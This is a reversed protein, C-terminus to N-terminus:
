GRAAQLASSIRHAARRVRAIKAELIEDTFNESRGGISISGLVAGADDLIPAAVASVGELFDSESLSYGAARVEDLHAALAGPEHVTRPTYTSLGQRIWAERLEPSHALMAVPGAAAHYPLVTGVNIGAVVLSGSGEVKDICVAGEEAPVMLYATDGFEAVLGTMFSRAASRIDLDALASAGIEFLRVTVRYGGEPTRDVWGAHILTAMLRHVTTKNMGSVETLENLTWTSRDAGFHDLLACAKLLAGVLERSQSADSGPSTPRPPSPM